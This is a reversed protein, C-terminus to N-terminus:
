QTAEETLARGAARRSFLVEDFVAALTNLMAVANATGMVYPGVEREHRHPLRSVLRYRTHGDGPAWREVQFPEAVGLGLAESASLNLRGVAAAIETRKSM